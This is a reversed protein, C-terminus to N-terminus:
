DCSTAKILQTSPGNRTKHRPSLPHISARHRRGTADLTARSMGYQATREACYRKIRMAM